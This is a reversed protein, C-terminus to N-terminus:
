KVLGRGWVIRLLSLLVLLSVLFYFGISFNDGWYVWGYFWVWSVISISFRLWFGVGWVGYFFYTLYFVVLFCIVLKVVDMFPLDFILYVLVGSFIGVYEPVSSFQEERVGHM